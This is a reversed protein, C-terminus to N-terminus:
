LGPRAPMDSGRPGSWSDGRSRAPAAACVQGKRGPRPRRAGYDATAVGGGMSAPEILGARAGGREPGNVVIGKMHDDSGRGKGTRAWLWVREPAPRQTAM